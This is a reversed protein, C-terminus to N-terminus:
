NLRRRRAARRRALGAAGLGLLAMTSPEPVSSVSTPTVELDDVSFWRFDSNARIELKNVGTFGATLYQFTNSLGLSGSSAILNDAGDYGFLEITSANLGYTSSLTAFYGGAVDHPSLFDVVLGQPGNWNWAYTNGSVPTPAPMWAPDTITGSAWGTDGPSPVVASGIGPANSYGWKFGHYSGSIGLNTFNDRTTLDDFTIVAARASGAVSLM